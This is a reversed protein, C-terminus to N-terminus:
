KWTKVWKSSNTLTPFNEDIVIVGFWVLYQHFHFVPETDLLSHGSKPPDTKQVKKIQGSLITTKTWKLKAFCRRKQIKKGFM